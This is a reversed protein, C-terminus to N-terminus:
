KVSIDILGDEFRFHGKTKASVLVKTQFLFAALKASATDYTSISVAEEGYDLECWYVIGDASLGENDGDRGFVFDFECESDSLAGAADVTAALSPKSVFSEDPCDSRSLERIRTPAFANMKEALTEFQCTSPDGSRVRFRDRLADSRFLRCWVSVRRPLFSFTRGKKTWAIAKELCLRTSDTVEFIGDERVPNWVLTDYEFDEGDKLLSAPFEAQIRERPRLMGNEEGVTFLFDTRVAYKSPDDFLFSAESRPSEKLMHLGLLGGSVSECDLVKARPNSRALDGSIKVYKDMLDQDNAICILSEEVRISKKSKFAEAGGSSHSEGNVKADELEKKKTSKLNLHGKVEFEVEVTEGEEIQLPAELHFVANQWRCNGPGGSDPRTSLSTEGDMQLRFWAAVAHVSGRSSCAVDFKRRVGQLRIRSIAASDCFDIEALDVDDSLKLFNEKSLDECDYPEEELDECALSFTESKLSGLKESSFFKRARLEESQLLFFHLKAKRPIVAAGPRLLKKWAHGLIDLCHEGLLGADFTETVLADFRDEGTPIEMDVSLREEVRVLGEMGAAALVERSLQALSANAEVAVVEGSQKEARSDKKKPLAAYLSLLGTGSGVDVVRDGPRRRLHAEVAAKYALNRGTDNVMAFHWGPLVASQARELRERVALSDPCAQSM